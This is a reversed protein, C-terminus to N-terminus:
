MTTSAQQKPRQGCHRLHQPRTPAVRQRRKSKGRTQAPKWVAGNIRQKIPHIIRAAIKAFPAATKKSSHRAAQNTTKPPLGPTEAALHTTEQHGPPTDQAQQSLQTIQSATSDVVKINSTRPPKPIHGQLHRRLAKYNDLKENNTPCVLERPPAHEYAYATNDRVCRGVHWSRCPHAATERKARFTTGCNICQNSM